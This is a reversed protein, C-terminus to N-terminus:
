TSRKTIKLQKKRFCKDRAKGRWTARMTKFELGMEDHPLGGDLQKATRSLWKQVGDKLNASDRLVDNSIGDYITVDHSIEM